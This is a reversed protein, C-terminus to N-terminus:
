LLPRRSPYKESALLLVKKSNYETHKSDIPVPRVSALGTAFRPDGKLEINGGVRDPMYRLNIM